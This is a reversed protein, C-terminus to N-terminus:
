KGRRERGGKGEGAEKERGGRGSEGEGEREAMNHSKKHQSM